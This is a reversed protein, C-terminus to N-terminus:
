GTDSGNALVFGVFPRRDKLIRSGAGRAQHAPDVAIALELTGARVFRYLPQGHLMVRVWGAGGPLNRNSDLAIV